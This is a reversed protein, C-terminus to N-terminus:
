EKVRLKDALTEDPTVIFTKFNDYIVMGPKAGPPKRVFKVTTYDVPVKASKSAKSHYVALMAAEELTTNPIDKGYSRVITHSGPINRTHMWIDKSSAIKFTLLDNQRNNKGVFIDIGDSSRYHFPASLAKHGAESGSSKKGSKDKKRRLYKASLYGQEFLEEIIEDIEESTSCNQLLHSVGELYNLEELTEKVQQSAHEYTSKAKSYRKFYLQANEQPTKNEDLPIEIIENNESYYNPLFVKEANNPISYIFATILEGYLKLKERDSVQRLDEQHIALKKSCREIHADLIKFIGSKKNNVKEIFVRGSYFFDLVQSMSDFFEMHKDNKNALLLCHFDSPKDSVEDNFVLYPSYDGIRIKIIAKNLADKLSSIALPNELIASAAWKGDVGAMNCIERCLFPSFGKINNLLFKEIPIANNKFINSDEKSDKYNTDNETNNVASNGTRSDMYSSFLVDIKINLPNVKDQSPPLVYERAPMVERVRSIDSSVHKIADIIKGSEHVLIINSHRGMIEIILKKTSIDGLENVSEINVSIIREYDHFDFGTIKGGVLHKRLLMCFVPPTSPNDKSVETLHIRPYNPNASLLLKNNSGKSRIFIVIEDPEPQFIKDIRGGTLKLDLENVICDAVIGDLPM